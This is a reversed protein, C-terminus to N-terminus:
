NNEHVATYHISLLTHTITYSLFYLFDSNFNTTYEWLYVVVPVFWKKDHINSESLFNYLEKLSQAYKQIADDLATM